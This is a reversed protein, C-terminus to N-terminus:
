DVPTEKVEKITLNVNNVATMGPFEKVLDVLKIQM